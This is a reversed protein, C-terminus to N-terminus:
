SRSKASEIVENIRRKAEEHPVTRGAEADRLGQEVGEVIAIERAVYNAIAEGALFSKTRQTRKALRALQEKLEPPLRVTMTTSSM